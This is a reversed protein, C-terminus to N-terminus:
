SNRKKREDDGYLQALKGINKVADKGLDEGLAVNIQDAAEVFELIKEKSDIGLRGADGALANLQERPTRTDMQRLAENLDKVQEVTMGTYKRVDAEAEEMQAYAEVHQHIAGTVSSMAQWAGQVTMAINATTNMLNNFRSWSSEAAKQEESIERLQTKVERITQQYAKWEDSGRKVSGSELERNISKLTAKLEKPGAASMNQLAVDVQQKTARMKSLSRECESVEKTFDRLKLTEKATLEGDAAKKELAEKERRAHELRTQLNKMKKEVDETNLHLLVTRRINDNM